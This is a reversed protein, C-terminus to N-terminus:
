SSLSGHLGRLVRALSEAFTLTEICAASRLYHETKIYETQLPNLELFTSQGVGTYCVRKLDIKRALTIRRM